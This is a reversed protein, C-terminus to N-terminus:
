ALVEPWYGNALEINEEISERWLGRVNLSFNLYLKNEHITWAEPDTAAIAGKSMAYACYGGYKPAYARPNGMFMEENDVSAFVWTAGEWKLANKMDGMVPEEQTFYAVPDYGNIAVGSNNYVYDASARAPIAALSTLPAAAGFALIQRRSFM